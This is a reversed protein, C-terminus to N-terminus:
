TETRLRIRIAGRATSADVLRGRQLIDVRGKAVLRRAAKRAAPMLARWDGTSRNGAVIQAAESPCITKGAGRMRLLEMMVAELRRDSDNLGRHRCARSCYRVNEWNRRWKRRWVMRRGCVECYKERPAAM